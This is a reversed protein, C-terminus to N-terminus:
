LEFNLTVPEAVEGVASPSHFAFRFQFCLFKFDNTCAYSYFIKSLQKEFCSAIL